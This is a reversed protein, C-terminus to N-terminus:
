AYVLYGVPSLIFLPHVAKLQLEPCVNGPRLKNCLDKIIRDSYISSLVSGVVM